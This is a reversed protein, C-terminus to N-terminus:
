EQEYRRWFKLMEVYVVPVNNVSTGYRTVVGDIKQAPDEMDYHHARQLNAATPNEVCRSDHYLRLEAIQGANILMRYYLASTKMPPCSQDEHCGFLKVPCKAIMHLGSLVNYREAVKDVGQEIKWFSMMTDKDPLDTCMNYFPVCKVWKDWNDYLIQWEDDTLGGSSWEFGDPANTM